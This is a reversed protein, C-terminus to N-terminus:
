STHWCEIPFSLRAAQHARTLFGAAQMGVSGASQPSGYKWRYELPLQKLAPDSALRDLGLVIYTGKLVLGDCQITVVVFDLGPEQELMIPTGYFRAQFTNVGRSTPDVGTAWRQECWISHYSLNILRSILLVYPSPGCLQKAYRNVSLTTPRFSARSSVHDTYCKIYQSQIALFFCKM